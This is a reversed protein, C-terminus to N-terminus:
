CCSSLRAKVAAVIEDPDPWGGGLLRRWLGGGRRAVVEGDVVVDFQGLRGPELEAEIGTKEALQAALGM